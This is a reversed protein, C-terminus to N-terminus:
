GKAPINSRKTEAPSRQNNFRTIENRYWERKEFVDDTTKTVWGRADRKRRDQWNKQFEIGLRAQEKKIKLYPYVIELFYLANISSADWSFCPKWTPHNKHRIRRSITTPFLTFLWEITDRHTNTIGTRLIHLATKYSPRKDKTIFVHGEGDFLGAIYATELETIKGRIAM